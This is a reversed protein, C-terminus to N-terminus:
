NSLELKIIDMREKIHKLTEETSQMTDALLNLMMVNCTEDDVAKDWIKQNEKILALGDQYLKELRQLKETYIFDKTIEM